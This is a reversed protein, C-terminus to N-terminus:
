PEHSHEKYRLTVDIHSSHDKPKISVYSLSLPLAAAGRLFRLFNVPAGSLIFETAAGGGTSLTRLGEVGVAHTRLLDRIAAASNEANRRIAAPSEAEPTEPARLEALQDELRSILGPPLPGEAKLTRRYQAIAKRGDRIERIYVAARFLFFAGLALCFVIWLSPRKNKKM